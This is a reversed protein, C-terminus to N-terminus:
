DNILYNFYRLSTPTWQVDRLTLNAPPHLRPRVRGTTDSRIEDYQVTAFFDPARQSERFESLLVRYRVTLRSPELTVLKEASPAGEIIVEVVRTAGTFERSVAVVTTTELERDVLQALTDVLALEVAVSDTLNGRKFLETPWETLRDVISRAGSVRVSDPIVIPPYLLEHTDPTTIEYKLRIPVSITIREDTRAAYTRPAVSELRLNKPFEPPTSELDVVEQSADLPYFPRNYYLQFLSLGEGQVQVRVSRPPVQTLARELPLNVVTTPLDVVLSYNKQMSFVLWLLASVLVSVAIAFGTHRPSTHDYGQHKRDGEFISRLRGWFVPGSANDDPTPV